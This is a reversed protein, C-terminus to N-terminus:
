ILANTYPPRHKSNIQHKAVDRTPIRSDQVCVTGSHSQRVVPSASTGLIPLMNEVLMGWGCVFQGLLLLLNPTFRISAIRM